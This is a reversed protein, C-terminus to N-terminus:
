LVIVDSDARARCFGLARIDLPFPLDDECCLPLAPALGRGVILAQSHQQFNGLLREYRDRGPWHEECSLM